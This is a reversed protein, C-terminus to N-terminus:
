ERHGLLAIRGQEVGLPVDHESMDLEHDLGGRALADDAACYQLRVVQIFNVPFPQAAVIGQDLAVVKSLSVGVTEVASGRVVVGSVVVVEVGVGNVPRAGLNDPLDVALGHSHQRGVGRLFVLIGLRRHHDANSHPGAAIRVVRM